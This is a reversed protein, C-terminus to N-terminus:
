NNAIMFWMVSMVTYSPEIVQSTRWRSRHEPQSRCLLNGQLVLLLLFALGSSLLAAPVASDHKPPLRYACVPLWM